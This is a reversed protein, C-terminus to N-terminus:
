GLKERAVAVRDLYIRMYGDDAGAGSSAAFVFTIEHWGSSLASGFSTATLGGGDPLYVMRFKFDNDFDLRWTVAPTGSVFKVFIIYKGNGIAVDNTNFWFTLVGATQDVADANITGYANTNDDFTIEMGINGTHAAATSDNLDGDGDTEADFDGVENVEGDWAVPSLADFDTIEEDFIQKWTTM